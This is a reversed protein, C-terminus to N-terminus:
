GDCLDGQRRLARTVILRFAHTRKHLTHVTEAVEDGCGPVPATWAVEPVGRISATVAVDQDATIAGRVGDGELANIVEAQASASDARAAAIRKGQPLRAQCPRCFALHGAAPSANGERFEDLLCVPTEFLVGM